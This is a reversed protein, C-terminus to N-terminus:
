GGNSEDVREMKFSHVEGLGNFLEELFSEADEFADAFVSIEIQLKKIPFTPEAPVDSPAVPDQIDEGEM